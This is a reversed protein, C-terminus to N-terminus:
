SQRQSGRVITAAVERVKEHSDIDGQVLMRFATAEDVDHKSRLLAIARGIVVKPAMEEYIDDPASM